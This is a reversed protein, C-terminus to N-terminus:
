LPNYLKRPSQLAEQSTKVFEADSLLGRTKSVLKMMRIKTREESASIRRLNHHTKEESESSSRSSSESFM